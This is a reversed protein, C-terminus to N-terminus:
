SSRRGGGGVGRGERLQARGGEEGGGATDSREALAREQDELRALHWRIGAATKSGGEGQAILDELERQRQALMDQVRIQVPRLRQQTKNKSYARKNEVDCRRCYGRLKELTVKDVSFESWLRMADEDAFFRPHGSCKYRLQHEEAKVEDAQKTM